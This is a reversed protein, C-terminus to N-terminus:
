YEFWASTGNVTPADVYVAPRGLVGKSVSPSVILKEGAADIAYGSLWFRYRDMQWHIVNDNVVEPEKETRRRLEAITLVLAIRGDWTDRSHDTEYWNRDGKSFEWGKCENADAVTKYPHTHFDGVMTLHPWRGAIVRQKVKTVDDNLGVEGATGKAFTDTSVYDVVVHDGDEKPVVYGWLLGATEAIGKRVGTGWHRVHYSEMGAVVLGMLSADGVHITLNRNFSVRADSSKSSM